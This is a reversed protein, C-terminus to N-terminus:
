ELKPLVSKHCSAPVLNVATGKFLLGHERGVFIDYKPLVFTADNLPDFRGDGRVGEFHAGRDHGHLDRTPLRSADRQFRGDGDYERPGGGTTPPLLPVDGPIPPPL